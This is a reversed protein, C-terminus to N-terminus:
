ATRRETLRRIAVEILFIIAAALLFYSSVPRLRNSSEFSQSVLQKEIGTVNTVSFGKGGAAATVTAASISPYVYERPYNVVLRRPGIRYVGQGLEVQGEYAGDQTETLSVNQGGIPLTGVVPKSSYVLLDTTENARPDDARVYFDQQKAADGLAYNVIRSVLQPDKSYVQGAWSSGDDTAFSVIRGLGFFASAVIPQNQSTVVLTQATTKPVVNNYGSIQSTLKLGSTIFSNDDWPVLSYMPTKTGSRNQQPETGFLVKFRDQESPVFMTGGTIRALQSLLITNSGNGVSVTYLKVGENRLAVAATQDAQSTDSKGDSFLIAYRTGTAHGLMIAAQGLGKAISTGGQFTLRSIKDPVNTQTDKPTLEQVIQSNANFTVVGADDGPKLDNYVSTALGKEVQDVSVVSGASFQSGTSSSVDIVLVVSLKGPAGPLSRATTTPLISEIRSGKYGGRDFSNDGGVVVLGNGSLVYKSLRDIYPDIERAPLNDLVLASVNGLSPIQSSFRVNYLQLLTQALPSNRNSTVLDVTPKKAVLISQAAVNNEGIGDSVVIKAVLLRDGVLPRISFHFANPGRGTTNYITQNDLTVILTYNLDKSAQNGDVLVTVPTDVGSAVLPPASLTVGLDGEVPKLDLLNVSANLAQAYKAFALGDGSLMGDTALLIPTGQQVYQRVADWSSTDLTYVQTSVRSRLESILSDLGQTNTNRMSPTKDVVIVVKPDSHVLAPLTVFPAAFVACVLAIISLRSAIVLARRLRTSRRFARQQEVDTFAVFTRRALTVLLVGLVALVVFRVPHEFRLTGLASLTTVLQGFVM